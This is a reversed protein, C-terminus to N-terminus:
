VKPALVPKALNENPAVAADLTLTVVQFSEALRVQALAGEDNHNWYQPV